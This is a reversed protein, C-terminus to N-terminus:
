TPLLTAPSIYGMFKRNRMEAIKIYHSRAKVKLVAENSHRQSAKCVSRSSTPAQMEICPTLFGTGVM